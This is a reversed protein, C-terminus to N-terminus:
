FPIDDDMNATGGSNAAQPAYSAPTSASPQNTVLKDKLFPILKALKEPKVARDLIESATFDTAAEFAHSIGMKSGISGDQKVYEELVLLLGIPKGILEPFIIAPRSVMTKTATDYEEAMGNASSLTRLKCCVMIASLLKFGYLEKGEASQTWLTLYDATQGDNSMFAFEVGLTGKKASKVEKAGTFTGIYKGTESIRTGQSDAGRAAEQNLAYNM